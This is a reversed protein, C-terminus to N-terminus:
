MVAATHAETHKTIAQFVRYFFLSATNNSNISRKTEANKCWQLQFVGNEIWAISGYGDTGVSGTAL